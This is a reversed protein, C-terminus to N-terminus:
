WAKGFAITAAESVISITIIESNSLKFDFINRRNKISDFIRENYIDDIM